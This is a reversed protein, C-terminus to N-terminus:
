ESKINTKQTSTAKQELYKQAVNNTFTARPVFVNKAAYAAWYTHIERISLHISPNLSM